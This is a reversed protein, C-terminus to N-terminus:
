AMTRRCATTAPAPRTTRCTGTATLDASSFTELEAPIQFDVISINM